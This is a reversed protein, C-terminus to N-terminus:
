YTGLFNVFWGKYKYDLKTLDDSFSTFNYGVGVRFNKTIDRDVGILYGHKTGGDKVDLVRYELLGHWKYLVDYRVQGAYFSTKSDFWNGNGRGYRAEGERAAYKLAFELKENLKYIGEFSLVQSKQDYSSGNLVEQGMTSLDYLYTYRGFFAWKTSNYPRYAFGINAETFRAGDQFSLYDRTKSYNFRSALSLSEDVKFSLRNTTLWQKREEAGQDQRYELRSAWNMTNSTRGLNVSFADRDVDGNGSDLEGKQYLFGADWGEGMYFDMGLSNTTGKDANDKNYQSENYLSVRNTINWKQGVTFGSNTKLGFATDFDSVYNNVWTYGGYVTHDKSFRHSIDLELADGRHGTTYQASATSSDGYLYRAGFIAADNNEYAGNDNHLTAQGTAFVEMNPNIDYDVRLAGLTGELTSNGNDTQLNKIEASLSLVDGFRYEATLQEEAHSADGNEVKNAKTYVKLSKSIQGSLEFGYETM